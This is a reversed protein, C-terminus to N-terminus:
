QGKAFLMTNLTKFVISTDLVFSYHRLYYLDYELKRKTDQLNAGYPYNVQAWGTIGPKILHRFHYCPIEREYGAVLKDWEARPGILSMDGRLVNWLQPLEDLRWKRLRGGIRTLRSDNKQTYLDGKEAGVTMTRFKLIDFTERNLGVRRQRFLIPGGDTLKVAVAVAALVPALLALAAASVLIDVLRKIHGYVPDHAIQFGDRLIWAPSVLSLPVRRLRSEYFTDFSYVPVSSLRLKMIAQLVGGQYREPDEACVVGSIRGAYRGFLASDLIDTQVREGDPVVCDAISSTGDATAFVVNDTGARACYDNYFQGSRGNGGLFLLFSRAMQRSARAYLDRRYILSLPLFLAFALMMSFRRPVETMFQFVVFFLIGTALAAFMVALLHQVAYGASLFDTRVRYGDILYFATGLALLPVVLHLLPPMGFVPQRLLHTGVLCTAGVILDLLLLSIAFRQVEGCRMREPRGAIVSGVPCSVAPDGALGSLAKPEVAGLLRLHALSSGSTGNQASAATTQLAQM